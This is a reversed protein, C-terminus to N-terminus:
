KEHGKEWALTRGLFYFLLGVFALAVTAAAAQAAPSLLSNLASLTKLFARGVPELSTGATQLLAATKAIFIAAGKAHALFSKNWAGLLSVLNQGSAIVLVSLSLASFGATALLILRLKRPRLRSIRAMVREPFDAPLELPPVDASADHLFKRDEVASRCKSCQKLHFEAQEKEEPALDGELYAYIKRITLCSM